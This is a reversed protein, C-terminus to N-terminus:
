EETIIRELSQGGFQGHLPPHTETVRLALGRLRGLLTQQRRVLVLQGPIGRGGVHHDHAPVRACDERWYRPAVVM